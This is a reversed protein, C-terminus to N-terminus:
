GSAARPSPRAGRAPRARPLRRRRLLPRPRGARPAVCPEEGRRSRLARHPDLDAAATLAFDALVRQTEPGASGDDVVVVEFESQPLTQHCFGELCAALLAPREYTALLVSIRPAEPSTVASSPQPRPGDAHDEFVDLVRSDALPDGDSRIPRALAIPVADVITTPGERAAGARVATVPLPTTGEVERGLVGLLRETGPPGAEPGCIHAPQAREVGLTSLTTVIGLFDDVFRTPLIATADVHLIWDAEGDEM